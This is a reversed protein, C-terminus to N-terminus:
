RSKPHHRDLKESWKQLHYGVAADVDRAKTAASTAASAIRPSAISNWARRLEDPEPHAMLMAELMTGHAVAQAQLEGITEILDKVFEEEM